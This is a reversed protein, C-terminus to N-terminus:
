KRPEELPQGKGNKRGSETSTSQPDKPRLVLLVCVAVFMLMAYFSVVGWFKEPESARTFHFYIGRRKSGFSIEGSSVAAAILVLAIVLAIWGIVISWSSAEDTEYVRTEDVSKM